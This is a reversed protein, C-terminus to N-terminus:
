VSYEHINIEVEVRFINVLGKICYEVIDFTRVTKALKYLMRSSVATTHTRLINKKAEEIKWDYQYSFCFAFIELTFISLFYIWHCFLKLTGM